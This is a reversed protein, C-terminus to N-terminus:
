PIETNSTVSGILNKGRTFLEKYNVELVKFVLSVVDYVGDTARNLLGEDIKEPADGDIVVTVYDAHLVRKVLDVLSDGDLSKSLKEVAASFNREQTEASNNSDRAETIAAFSSLFRKQVEGLIKLSLFADYRRIYFKNGNDLVFEVRKTDAAM